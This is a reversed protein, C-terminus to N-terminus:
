SCLKVFFQCAMWFLGAYVGFGLVLGVVLITIAVPVVGPPLSPREM